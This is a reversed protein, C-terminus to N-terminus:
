RRAARMRRCDRGAFGRIGRGLPQHEVDRRGLEPDGGAALLEHAANAVFERNRELYDAILDLFRNITQSLKDLEDGTGRIPLREEMHSPRLRAATTIIRALPHTARGSLWYGGLPALFLLVIGVYTALGTLKSVDEEVPKLSSGVRVVYAPVGQKQIRRQAVRYGPIGRVSPHNVVPLPLRDLDPADSSSWIHEGSPDLLQVFLGEEEHGVVMHDMEKQPGKLDPYADEVARSIVHTNDVLSKDMEDILSLRLGEHIGALALLVTLLVVTTNWATLRFRLSRFIARFQEFRM